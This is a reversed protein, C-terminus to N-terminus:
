RPRLAQRHGGGGAEPGVVPIPRAPPVPGPARVRRQPAPVSAGTSPDRTRELARLFSERRSADLFERLLPVYFLVAGTLIVLLSALFEVTDDTTVLFVAGACFTTGASISLMFLRLFKNTM